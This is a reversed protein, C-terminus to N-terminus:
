EVSRHSPQSKEGYHLLWTPMTITDCRLFESNSQPENQEHSCTVSDLSTTTPCGRPLNDRRFMNHQALLRTFDRGGSTTTVCARIVLGPVTIAIM